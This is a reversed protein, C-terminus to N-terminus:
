IVRSSIPFEKLIYNNISLPFNVQIAAIADQLEQKLSELEPDKPPM